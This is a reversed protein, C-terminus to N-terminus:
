TLKERWQFNGLFLHNATFSVVFVGRGEPLRIPAKQGFERMENIICNKSHVVTGGPAASAGARLQAVGVAGGGNKNIGTNILGGLAAANERLEIRDTATSDGADIADVYVIKGSGAPNFLQVLSVQGAVPGAPSGSYFAEGDATEDDGFLFYRADEANLNVPTLISGISAISQQPPKFRAQYGYWLNMVLGPQAAWSVLIDKIPIGEVAAQATLPFADEAGSNLKVYIKGTSDPDAYLYDGNVRLPTDTQAVDLALPQLRRLTSALIVRGRKDATIDEVQERYGPSQSVRDVV